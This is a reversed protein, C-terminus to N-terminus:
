PRLFLSLQLYSLSCRYRVHEVEAAHRPRVTSLLKKSLLKLKAQIDIFEFSAILLLERKPKEKQENKPVEINRYYDLAM